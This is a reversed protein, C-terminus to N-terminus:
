LSLEKIFKKVNVDRHTRSRAPHEIEIVAQPDPWPNSVSEIGV